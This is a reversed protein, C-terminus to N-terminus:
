LHGDMGVKTPKENMLFGVGARLTETTKCWNAMAM